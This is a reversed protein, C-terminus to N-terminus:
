GKPQPFCPDGSPYAEIKSVFILSPHCYTKTVFPYFKGNDGYFTKNYEVLTQKKLTLVSLMVVNLMVVGLMISKNEIGLM